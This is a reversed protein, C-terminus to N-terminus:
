AGVFPFSNWSSHTRMITFTAWACEIRHEFEVQVADKFTILQGFYKIKGDPPLIETNMGQVRVTNGRGRKSTTNSMITTKTSHLQLGHATTVATFDDQMTTTLKLSGSILIIDDAVRLNSLNADRDHEVFSVGHNYRKCKGPIPKMSYQILAHQAPRWAQNRARSPPRQKQRRHASISTTPKTPPQTHPEEIGQEKLAKRVSSREVTDFAEKFCIAAVWLPQHWEIARQRLEQFTVVHDTTSYGPRFGAHEASQNENPTPQLRQLFLQSFLTYWISIM